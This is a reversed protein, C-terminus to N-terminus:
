SLIFMQRDFMLSWLLEIDLHLFSWQSALLLQGFVQVEPIENNSSNGSGNWTSIELPENNIRATSFKMTPLMPEFNMDLTTCILLYVSNRTV